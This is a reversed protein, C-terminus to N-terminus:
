PAPSSEAPQSLINFLKAYGAYSRVVHRSRADRGVHVDRLLDTQVAPNDRSIGSPFDIEQQLPQWVSSYLLWLALLFAAIIVVLRAASSALLRLVSQIFWVVRPLWRERWSQNTRSTLKSAM